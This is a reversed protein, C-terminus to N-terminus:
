LIIFTIENDWPLSNILHTVAHGKLAETCTHCACSVILEKLADGRESEGNRRAAGFVDQKRPAEDERQTQPLKNTLQPSFFIFDLDSSFYKAASLM